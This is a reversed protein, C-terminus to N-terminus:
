PEWWRTRSGGRRPEHYNVIGVLEHGAHTRRHLLRWLNRGNLGELQIDSASYHVGHLTVPKGCVRGAQLDETIAGLKTMTRGSVPLQGIQDTLIQGWAISRPAPPTPPVAGPGAAARTAAPIADRLRSFRRRPHTVAAPVDATPSSAAHRAPSSVAPIYEM